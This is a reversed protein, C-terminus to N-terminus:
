ILVRINSLQYVTQVTYLPGPRSAAADRGDTAEQLIDSRERHVLKVCVTIMYPCFFDRIVKLKLSREPSWFLIQCIEAPNKKKPKNQFRHNKLKFM